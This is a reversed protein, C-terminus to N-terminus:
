AAALEPSILPKKGQESGGTGTFTKRPAGQMAALMKVLTEARKEPVKAMVANGQGFAPSKKIM